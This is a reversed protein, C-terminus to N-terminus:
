AYVLKNLLEDCKAQTIKGDSLAKKIAQSIGYKDKSMFGGSPNVEYSSNLEVGHARADNLLDLAADNFSNGTNAGTFSIDSSSNPSPSDQWQALVEDMNGEGIMMADQASLDLSNFSDVDIDGVGDFFADILKDENLSSTDIGGMLNIIKFAFIAFKAMGLYATRDDQITGNKTQRILEAFDKSAVFKLMEKYVGTFEEVCNKLFYKDRKSLVNNSIVEGYNFTKFSRALFYEEKIESSTSHDTLYACNDNKSTNIVKWLKPFQHKYTDEKMKFIKRMYTLQPIKAYVTWEKAYDSEAIYLAYEMGRQRLKCFIVRESRSQIKVYDYGKKKKLIFNYFLVQNKNVKPANNNTTGSASLLVYSVEHLKTKPKSYKKM